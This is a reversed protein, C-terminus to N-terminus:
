TSARARWREGTLVGQGPNINLKFYRPWRGTVKLKIVDEEVHVVIRDNRVKAERTEDLDDVHVRTLHSARVGVAASSRVIRGLHELVNRVVGHLAVNPLTWQRHLRLACVGLRTWKEKAPAKAHHEEYHEVFRVRKVAVVAFLEHVLFLHGAVVMEFLSDVALDSVKGLVDNVDHELWVGLFTGVDKEDALM